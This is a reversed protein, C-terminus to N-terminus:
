GSLEVRLSPPVRQGSRMRQHRELQNLTRDFERSLHNEYRILRETVHQSPVFAAIEQYETRQVQKALGRIKLFEQRKPRLYADSAGLSLLWTKSSCRKTCAEPLAWSEDAFQSM